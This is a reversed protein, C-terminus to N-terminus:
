YVISFILLTPLFFYSTFSTYIITNGTKHTQSYTIRSYSLQITLIISLHLELLFTSNHSHYIFRNLCFFNGKWKDKTTYINHIYFLNDFLLHIPDLLMKWSSCCQVRLYISTKKLESSLNRGICLWVPLSIGRFIIM